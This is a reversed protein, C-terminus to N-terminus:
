AQEFAAIPKEDLVFGARSAGTRFVPVEFTLDVDVGPQRGQVRLRWDIDGGGERTESAPVAYPLAFVVAVAQGADVVPLVQPDLRREDKWVAVTRTSDGSQETRECSITVLYGDEPYAARPLQVVGALRGGLVGPVSAMQFFARGYRVAIWAARGAWVALGIGIVPFLLFILAVGGRQMIEGGSMVLFPWTMLNWFVAFGVFFLAQVRSSSRIVGAAWDARILWPQDEPAAAAAQRARRGRLGAYLMGAGAGGFVLVFLGHFLLLGTRLEPFLVADAPDAPNVRCTLERQGSLARQLEAHRDQHWSGINDSGTSLGVKFSEYTTGNIVYTFRATVRYTTSDGHSEILDAELIAAPVEPWQQIFHARNITRLALTGMFIGVGLFPLAFLMLFLPSARRSKAM